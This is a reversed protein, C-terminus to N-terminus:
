AEAQNTSSQHDTHFQNLLAQIIIQPDDTEIGLQQSIQNRLNEDQQLLEFLQELTVTQYEGEPLNEVEVVEVQEDFTQATAPTQKVTDPGEYEWIPEGSTRTLLQMGIDYAVNGVEGIDLEGLQVMRSALENNLTPSALLREGFRQLWEVWRETSVRHEINDLWKQAWAQGRAQYVGELLETFLVELDTDSLPPPPQKQVHARTAQTQNSGFLRQFFRRLWQIIRKLM